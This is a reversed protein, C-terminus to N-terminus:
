GVKKFIKNNKYDVNNVAKVSSFLDTIAQSGYYGLTYSVTSNVLGGVFTGDMGLIDAINDNKAFFSSIAFSVVAGQLTNKFDAEIDQFAGTGNGNKSDWFVYEGVNQGIVTTSTSIALKEINSYDNNAIIISGISGGISSGLKTSLADGEKAELFFRERMDFTVYEKFNGNKDIYDAVDNNGKGKLVEGLIKMTDPSYQVYKIVEDLNIDQSNGFKELVERAQADLLVQTKSKEQNSVYLMSDKYTEELGNTDLTKDKNVFEKVTNDSIDFDNRLIEGNSSIKVVKINGKDDSPIHYTLSGDHGEYVKVNGHGGQVNDVDKPIKVVFGVPLNKAQEETLGNYQLLEKTTYKTGVAIHSITQGSQLLVVGTTKSAVINITELITTETPNETENVWNGNSDQYSKTTKDGLTYEYVKNGNEDIYEIRQTPIIIKDGKAFGDVLEKENAYGNARALEDLNINKNSNTVLKQYLQTYASIGSNDYTLIHNENSIDRIQIDNKVNNEFVEVGGIGLKETRINGYIDVTIHTQVNGNIELLSYDKANYYYIREKGTATDIVIVKQNGENDTYITINENIEPKNPIALVTGEKMNTYDDVKIKLNNYALIEKATLGTAKAIDSLSTNEDITMTKDYNITNQLNESKRNYLDTTIENIYKNWEITNAPFIGKAVMTNYASLNTTKLDEFRQLQTTNIAQFDQAYNYSKEAVQGLDIGAKDLAYGIAEGAVFGVGVIAFAPLFSLVTTSLGIALGTGALGTLLDQIITGSIHAINDDTSKAYDWELISTVAGAKIQSFVKTIAPIDKADIINSKELQTLYGELAVDPAQIFFKFYRESGSQELIDTTNDKEENSNYTIDNAM